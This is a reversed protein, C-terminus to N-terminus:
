LPRQFPKATWIKIKIIWNQCFTMMRIHRTLCYRQTKHGRSVSHPFFFVEIEWINIHSAVQGPTHTDKRQQKYGCCKLTQKDACNQAKLNSLLNLDGGLRLDSPWKIPYHLMTWWPANSTLPNNWLVYTILMKWIFLLILQSISVYVYMIM